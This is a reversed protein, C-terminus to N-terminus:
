SHSSAYMHYLEEVLDAFVEDELAEMGAINELEMAAFENFEHESLGDSAAFIINNKQEPSLTNYDTDTMEELQEIYVVEDQSLVTELVSAISDGDRKCSTNDVKVYPRNTAFDSSRLFVGDVDIEGFTTEILKPSKDALEEQEQKTSQIETNHIEAFLPIIPQRINEQLNNAVPYGSFTVTYKETVDNYPADVESESGQILFPKTHEIVTQVDATKTIVFGLKSLEDIKNTFM